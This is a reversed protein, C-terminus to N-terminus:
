DMFNKFYTHINKDLEQNMAGLMSEILEYIKQNRENLTVNEAVTISKEINMNSNAIAQRNPDNASMKVVLKADYKTSQQNTFLGTLGDKVQLPTDIIDAQLITYTLTGSNGAAILRQNPWTMAMNLMSVPALHEINNGNLNAQTQNEVVINAVNINYQPLHNFAITAYSAPPPTPACAGLALVFGIVLLNLCNRPNVIHM